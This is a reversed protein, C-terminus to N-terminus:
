YYYNKGGAEVPQREISDSHCCIRRNKTNKSLKVTNHEPHDRNNMQDKKEMGLADVVIPMVTKKM